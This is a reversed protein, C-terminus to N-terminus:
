PPDLSNLADERIAFNTAINSIYSGYKNIIRTLAQGRTVGWQDAIAQIAPTAISNNARFAMYESYIIGLIDRLEPKYLGAVSNQAVINSDEFENEAQNRIYAEIEESSLPVVSYFMTWSLPSGSLVPIGDTVLKETSEDYAPLPAWNWGYVNFEALLEDSPDVPFSTNPYEKRIGAKSIFKIFNPPSAGDTLLYGDAMNNKSM